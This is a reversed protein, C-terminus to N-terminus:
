RRWRTSFGMLITVYLPSFLTYVLVVNMVDILQNEAHTVDENLVIVSRIDGKGVGM